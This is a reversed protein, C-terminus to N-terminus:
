LLPRGLQRIMQRTGTVTGGCLMLRFLSQYGSGAGCRDEGTADITAISIIIYVQRRTHFTKNRWERRTSGKWQANILIRIPERLKMAKDALFENFDKLRTVIVHLRAVCGNGVMLNPQAATVASM